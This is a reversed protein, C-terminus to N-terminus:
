RVFSVLDTNKAEMRNIVISLLYHGGGMDEFISSKM